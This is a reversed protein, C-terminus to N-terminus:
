GMLCIIHITCKLESYTVYASLMYFHTMIRHDRRVNYVFKSLCKLMSAPPFYVHFWGPFLCFLFASSLTSPHQTCLYSLLPVSFFSPPHCPIIAFFWRHGNHCGWIIPCPPPFSSSFSFFYTALPIITFRSAASVMVQRWGSGTRVFMEDSSIIFAMSGIPLADKLKIM